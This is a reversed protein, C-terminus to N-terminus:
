FLSQEVKIGVLKSEPETARSPYNDGALIENPRFNMDSNGSGKM